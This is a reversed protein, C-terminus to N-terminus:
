VMFLASNSVETNFISQHTSDIEDNSLLKHSSYFKKGTMLQITKGHEAKLFFDAKADSHM